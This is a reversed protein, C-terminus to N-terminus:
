LIQELWSCASMGAGFRRVALRLDVYKIIALERRNSAFRERSPDCLVEPRVHRSRHRDGRKPGKRGPCM